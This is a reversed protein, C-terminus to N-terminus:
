VLDGAKKRRYIRLCAVSTAAAILSLTISGGTKPAVFIGAVQPRRLNINIQTGFINTLVYDSNPNNINIRVSFTKEIRAGAPINVPQWRLRYRALDFDAGSFDVLNSLELVDTLNDEFVFNSSVGTGRNEVALTYVILDGPQAQIDTANRNQSANHAKKTRVLDVSTGAVIPASDRNIIVVATDTVSTTNSATATATNTWSSSGVPFSGESAARASFLVMQTANANLTGVSSNLNGSVLTFNAPLTDSIAVNLAASNGFNFIQIRFEVLDNPNAASSNTFITQGATVNRVDKAISLGIVPNPSPPPPPPNPGPPPPPPPQPAAPANRTIVVVATDSVSSVNSAGASATNIWSSSGFPFSAEAAARALILVTQSTGAAMNGLNFTTTSSNLTFNQPLADTVVAGNAIGGFASVTIRFEVQDGPNAAISNIFLTQGQSVNRVDKTITLGPTGSPPPPPPPQVGVTSVQCTSSQTGSIVAVNHLGQAAFQATFSSGTGSSPTGTPASWSFTGTGGLAVFTVNTNIPVNNQVPPMCSLQSPPIAGAVVTASGSRSGVSSTLSAVNVLNTNGFPFQSADAVNARFAINKTQNSVNGLNISSLNNGAPVGDITLSNNVFNLKQPLQDSVVINNVTGSVEVRIQFEVQDNPDALIVGAFIPQNDSVNRVVKTLNINGASPPDVVSITRTCFGGFWEVNEEVMRWDFPFLGVQNPAQANFAFTVSQGPNVPSIPLNVRSLGWRLNDQPNQSGLRHPTSDSNTWPKTGTNTMTFSASFVQNREVQTPAQASSCNADNVQAITRQGHIRISYIKISQSNSNQGEFRISGGNYSIPNSTINTYTAIGARYNPCNDRGEYGGGSGNLDPVNKSDVSTRIRMTENPQPAQPDGFYYGYRALIDISYNGNPLGFNSIEFADGNQGWVHGLVVGACDPGTVGTVTGPFSGINMWGTDFPNGGADHSAQGITNFSVTIALFLAAAILKPVRSNFFYKKM